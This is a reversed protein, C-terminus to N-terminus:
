VRVSRIGMVPSEVQITDELAVWEAFREGSTGATSVAGTNRLLGMHSGSPVM